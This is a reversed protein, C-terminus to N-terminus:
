PQTDTRVNITGASLQERFCDILSQVEVASCSLVDVLACGREPWTHIGIHSESLLVYATIGQPEFQWMDEKLIHLNCMIAANRLAGAVRSPTNLFEEDCDSCEITVRTYEIPWM